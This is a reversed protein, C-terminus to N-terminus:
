DAAELLAQLKAKLEPVDQTATVWVDKMVLTQYKHAAVDRFGAILKWPIDKNELRIEEGLSKVLEGINILTMSAARKLVEDANFDDFTHISLMEALLDAEALIKLLVTHDRPQM